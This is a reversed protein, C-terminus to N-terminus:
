ALLKTDKKIFNKIPKGNWKKNQYNFISYIIRDCSAYNTFCSMPRTRRRVERFCREIINTTRVKIRHNKPRDFFPLLIDIDIELCKVAGPIYRNWHKKWDKYIQIAQRKNDALYIKKVGKMALIRYRKPIRKSVNRLKHVWCLQIPTFSYVAELAKHLGKGGDVTILKLNNGKLGRRYLNTLFATWQAESESSAQQYDILEREGNSKIGYAVLVPRKKSHVASRIGMYVGDLILYTYEDTLLKTHFVNVEKDLGKTIRSITSSSPKDELVNELVEGVRRTSVGALFTDLLLKNVTDQRRQYKRIALFSFGSGRPRPIRIHELYGMDTSLGRMYYGNRKDARLPSHEYYAFGIHDSLEVQLCEELLLKVMNKAAGRTDQWFYDKVEKFWGYLRNNIDVGTREKNSGLELAKKM